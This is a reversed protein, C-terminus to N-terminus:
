IRYRFLVGSKDHLSLLAPSFFAPHALHQSFLYTIQFHSSSTLHLLVPHQSNFLFLILLSIVFNSCIYPFTGNSPWCSQYLLLTWQRVSCLFSLFSLDPLTLSLCTTHWVAKLLLRESHVPAHKSRCLVTNMQPYCWCLCLSITKCRVCRIIQQSQARQATSHMCSHTHKRRHATEGLSLYNRKTRTHM